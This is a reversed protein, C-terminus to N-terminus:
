NIRDLYFNFLVIVVGGYGDVSLLPGTAPAFFDVVAVRFSSISKNLRSDVRVAGEALHEVKLVAFNKRRM